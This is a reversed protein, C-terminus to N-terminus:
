HQHQYNYINSLHTLQTEDICINAFLATLLQRVKQFSSSPQLPCIWRIHIATFIIDAQKFIHLGTNQLLVSSYIQCATNSHARDNELAVTLLLVTEKATKLRCKPCVCASSAAKNQGEGM